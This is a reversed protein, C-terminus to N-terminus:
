IIEISPDRKKDINAQPTIKASHTLVHGTEHDHDMWIEDRDLTSILIDSM